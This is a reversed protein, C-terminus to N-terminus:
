MSHYLAVPVQKSIQTMAQNMDALNAGASASYLANNCKHIATRIDLLKTINQKIATARNSERWKCIFSPSHPSHVSVHVYMQPVVIIVCYKLFICIISM